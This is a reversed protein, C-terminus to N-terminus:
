FLFYIQALNETLVCVLETLGDFWLIWKKSDTISPEIQIMSIKWIGTVSCLSQLNEAIHEYLALDIKDLDAKSSSLDKVTSRCYSKGCELTSELKLVFGLALLIDIGGRQSTVKAQM